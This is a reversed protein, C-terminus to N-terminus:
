IKFASIDKGEKKRGFEDERTYSSVCLFGGFLCRVTEISNDKVNMITKGAADWSRIESHSFLPPNLGALEM